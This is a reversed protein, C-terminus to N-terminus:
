KWDRVDECDTRATETCKARTRFHMVNPISQQEKLLKANYNQIDVFGLYNLNLNLHINLTCTKKEGEREKKKKKWFQTKTIM